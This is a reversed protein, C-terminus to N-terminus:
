EERTLREDIHKIFLQQKIEDSVVVKRFPTNTEISIQERIDDLESLLNFAGDWFDILNMPRITEIAFGTNIIDDIGKGLMENWLLYVIKSSFNKENNKLYQIIEKNQEAYNGTKDKVSRNSSKLINEINDNINEPFDLNTLALAMKIAPKIVTDKRCMDGDFAIYICNIKVGSKKIDNITEVINKWNTVGQVSVAYSGYHKAITRAKFFGETIFLAKYKIKKPKVVAIPAGPSTGFVSKSKTNEKGSSNAFSSSFWQYRRAKESIKDLRIQIGIINNNFDKIPIGVGSTGKLVTFCWKNKVLSFYFGPIKKLIHFGLNQKAMEEMLKPMISMDPFTFYGDEEIEEDNLNRTEKIELRHEETLKPKGILEYGRAFIQYISNLEEPTGIINLYENEGKKSQYKPESSTNKTSVNSTSSNNQIDDYETPTILNLELAIKLVASKFDINDYEMIFSISNGYAGCAFCRYSKKDKMIKFNNPTHDDHFPCIWKSYGAPQMRLKIIEDIPIDLIQEKLNKIIDYNSM